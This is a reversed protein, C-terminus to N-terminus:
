HVPKDLLRWFPSFGLCCGFSYNCDINGLYPPSNKLTIKDKDSPFKGTLKLEVDLFILIEGYIQFKGFLM